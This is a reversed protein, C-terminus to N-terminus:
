YVGKFTISYRYVITISQVDSANSTQAAILLRQHPVGAGSASSFLWDSSSAFSGSALSNVPKPTFRYRYTRGAALTFVKHNDFAGVQLSTPATYHGGPDCALWVTIQSNNTVGSQGPDYSSSVYAEVWNIKFRDYSSTLDTYQVTALNPDNYSAITGATMGYTSIGSSRVVTLTKQKSHNPRRATARAGLRYGATGVRRAGHALGSLINSATEIESSITM